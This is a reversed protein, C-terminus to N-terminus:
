HSFMSFVGSFVLLDEVSLSRTGQSELIAGVRETGGERLKGPRYGAGREGAEAGHAEEPAHPLLARVEPEGRPALVGRPHEGLAGRRGPIQLRSSSPSDSM